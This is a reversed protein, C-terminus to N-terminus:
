NILVASDHSLYSAIHRAFNPDSWCFHGFTV